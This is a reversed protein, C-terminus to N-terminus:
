KNSRSVAARLRPSKPLLDIEDMPQTEVYPLFADKEARTFRKAKWSNKDVFMSRQYGEAAMVQDRVNETKSSANFFQFRMVISSYGLSALWMEIWVRDGLFLPTKYNITTQALSPFSGLNILTSIPLGVADLMKLQGIEMWNVYVASHVQGAYNIQYLYTDLDFTNKKM